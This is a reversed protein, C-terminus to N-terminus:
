AGAAPEAARAVNALHFARAHHEPAWDQIYFGPLLEGRYVGVAEKLGEISVAGNPHRDLLAVDIWIPSGPNLTLSLDDALFYEVGEPLHGELAKRLRWLAQRLAARANEDAVDPWLLGALRERRHATGATVALYSLLSQAPRSPIGVAAGNVRVEFQGLLRLELVRSGRRRWYAV